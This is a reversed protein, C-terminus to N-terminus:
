RAVWLDVRYSKADVLKGDREVVYHRTSGDPYYCAALAHGNALMVYASEKLTGESLSTLKRIQKRTPKPM